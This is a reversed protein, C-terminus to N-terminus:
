TKTRRALGHRKVESELSNDLASLTAKVREKLLKGAGTLQAFFKKVAVEISDWDEKALKGEIYGVAGRDSFRALVVAAVAVAGEKFAADAAAWMRAAWDINRDAVFANRLAKEVIPLVVTDALTRDGRLM